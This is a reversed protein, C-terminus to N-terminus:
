AARTATFYRAVIQVANRAGAKISIAKLHDSVTFVSICLAKAAAKRNGVEALTEVVRCECETLNSPFQAPDAKSRIRRLQTSKM